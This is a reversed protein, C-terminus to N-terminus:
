CKSTYKFLIKRNTLPDDIESLYWDNIIWPNPLNDFGTQQFVRLNRFKPLHQLQNLSVDCYGMALAKALGHTSFKYTLGDVDQITFSTIKTRIGQTIMAGDEQFTIKMKTDGLSKCNGIDTPDLVFMGAKGNFQFTFYDLQKDEAILNHQSYVQNQKKYLPYKTLANPCGNYAHITAYLIGSPYKTVDTPDTLGYAVQDDPEGVQMRTIVGGAVLNWGQGVNSAVDNVKLGNGSNYSLAVISNLRSKDDQWNFMPLSFTASGTQLNVQAYARVLVFLLLM